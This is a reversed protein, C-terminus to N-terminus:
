RVTRVTRYVARGIGSNPLALLPLKRDSFIELQQTLVQDIETEFTQQYYEAQSQMKEYTVNRVANVSMLYLLTSLGIIFAVIIIFIITLKGQLSRKSLLRM